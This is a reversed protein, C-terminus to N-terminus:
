ICNLPHIEFIDQFIPKAVENEKKKGGRKKPPYLFLTLFLWNEYLDPYIHLEGNLTCINTNM